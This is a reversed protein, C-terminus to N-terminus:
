NGGIELEYLGPVGIRSGGPNLELGHESSCNSMLPYPQKFCLENQEYRISALMYVIFNSLCGGWVLVM